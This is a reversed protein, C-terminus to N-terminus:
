KALLFGLVGFVVAAIMLLALFGAMVRASLSIKKKDGNKM